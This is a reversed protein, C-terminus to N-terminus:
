IINFIYNHISDVVQLYIMRSVEAYTLCLLQYQVFLAITCVGGCHYYLRMLTSVTGAAPTGTHMLFVNELTCAM